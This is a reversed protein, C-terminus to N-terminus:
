SSGTAPSAATSCTLCHFVDGGWREDLGPVQPYRYDMGPTLLLTRALERRGDALTVAYTGDEERNAQTVEGGSLEVSPYSVLEARAGTCYEAPPRGDHGLLGGITSAPLNSQRGADVVLTTHWAGYGSTTTFTWPLDGCARPDESHPRCV